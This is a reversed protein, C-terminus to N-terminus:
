PQIDTEDLCKQNTRTGHTENWLADMYNRDGAIM